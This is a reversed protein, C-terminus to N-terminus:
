WIYMSVFSINLSLPERNGAWLMMYGLLGLLICILQDWNDSMVLFVYLGWLGLTCVFNNGVSSCTRLLMVCSRRVASCSRQIIFWARCVVFSTRHLMSFVRHATFLTQNVMSCRKHATSCSPWLISETNYPVYDIPRPAHRICCLDDNLSPQAHWVPTVFSNTNGGVHEEARDSIQEFEAFANRITHCHSIRKAM